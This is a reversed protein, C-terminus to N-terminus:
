TESVIKENRFDNSNDTIIYVHPSDPGVPFVGEVNSINFIYETPPADETEYTEQKIMM